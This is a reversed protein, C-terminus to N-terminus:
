NMQIKNMGSYFWPLANLTWVRNYHSSWWTTFASCRTLYVNIIIRILMFRAAIFENIEGCNQSYKRSVFNSFFFVFDSYFIVFRETPKNQPLIAIPGRSSYKCLALHRHTIVLLQASEPVYRLLSVCGKIHNIDNFQRRGVWIDIRINVGFM